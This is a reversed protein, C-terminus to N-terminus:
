SQSTKSSPLSYKAWRREILALYTLGMQTIAYRVRASDQERDTGNPPTIREAFASAAKLVKNANNHRIHVGDFDASRAEIYDCQLASGADALIKLCRYLQHQAPGYRPHAALDVGPEDNRGALAADIQRHYEELKGENVIRIEALDELATLLGFEDQRTDRSRFEGITKEAGVRARRVHREFRTRESAEVSVLRARPVVGELYKIEDVDRLGSVVFPGDLKDGYKRVIERGVIDHGMEDLARKAFAFGDREDTILRPIDLSRVISSAEIYMFNHRGSVYEAFTTKGACTRGAVLLAPPSGANSSSFLSLSEARPAAPSRRRRYASTPLNLAATYEELRDIVRDFARVRFDLPLSEDLSLSGLPADAGEPIFWGNFTDPTLWPHQPNRAFDPPSVAVHGQTEGHFLIARELGPIKLAIDSKVVARRDGGARRLADDLQSFTTEKFWHKVKMGPVDQTPGSLAEVRLSTDEVFVLRGAGIQGTVEGIARILLDATTGGYDEEYPDTKSTFYDVTLGQRDFVLRAQLYKEISSTYFYIRALLREPDVFLRRPM